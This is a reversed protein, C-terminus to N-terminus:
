RRPQYSSYNGLQQQQTPQNWFTNNYNNNNISYYSQSNGNHLDPLSSSVIDERKFQNYMPRYYKQAMPNNDFYYQYEQDTLQRGMLDNLTKKTCPKAEDVADLDNPNIAAVLQCLIWFGKSFPLAPGQKELVEKKEAEFDDVEAVFKTRVDDDIDKMWETENDNDTCSIFTLPNNEPIREHPNIILNVIQDIDNKTGNGPVGDTFLYHMTPVQTTSFAEKLRKYIPTGGNPGRSFKSQLEQHAYHAFEEPTKGQHNLIIKDSRNLFRITVEGTPILALMDVMIHLRDQAEEWRTMYSNGYHCQKLYETGQSLPVDSALSMSGSDDVIFNLKYQKLALLKNVLGIPIEYKSFINSLKDLLEGGDLKQPSRFDELYEQDQMIEMSSATSESLHMPENTAQEYIKSAQMIDQTSSIVALSKNPEALSSTQNHQSTYAPNLKMVGKDFIYKPVRNNM